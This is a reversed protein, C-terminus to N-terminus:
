GLHRVMNYGTISFGLEQYLALARPNDHAVRLKIRHIGLAQLSAELAAMAAKGYGLGRRTPAMYFDCIFTEGQATDIAHWLYGLPQTDIDLTGDDAGPGDAPVICLLHHNPTAVGQPLSQHLSQEAKHRATPLDHGHNSALDQAYDEIFYACYVPYHQESMPLLRVLPTPM